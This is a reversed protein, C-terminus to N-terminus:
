QETAQSFAPACSTCYWDDGSVVNDCFDCLRIHNRLARRYRYAAKYIDRATVKGMPFSTRGGLIHEVIDDNADPIAAKIIQEAIM